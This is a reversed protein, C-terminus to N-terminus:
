TFLLFKETAEGLLPLRKSISIQLLFWPCNTKKTHFGESKYFDFVAKLYTPDWIVETLPADTCFSWFCFHIELM